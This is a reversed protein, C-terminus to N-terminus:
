CSSPHFRRGGEVAAIIRLCATATAFSICNPLPWPLLATFLMLWAPWLVGQFVYFGVTLSLGVGGLLLRYWPSRVFIM